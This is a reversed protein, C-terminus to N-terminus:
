RRESLAIRYIRTRRTAVVNFKRWLRNVATNTELERNTELYRVGRARVADYIHLLGRAAMGETAEGPKAAAMLLDVTDPNRYARLIHLFGFPLLRGRARRFAHSLNPFAIMVGVLEGEADHVLTVFKPDLFSLYKKTYFQKQAHTLPMVGYLHEYAEELLAWVADAEALMTKRNRPAGITFRSDEMRKRLRELFRVPETVDMRSEVYDVQKELGYAELLAPYYPYHYSGSITPVLDFGEVMIGSPDLDTFGHPGTMEVCGEAQLWDRVRDLLGHAVRADDITEFWGFRGVKHGLKETELRNIIGCVRGVPTGDQFATFLAVQAIEYAPNKRPDFYDIEDSIIQPVYYPHDRYHSFVFRVWDNREAATSVERIELTM